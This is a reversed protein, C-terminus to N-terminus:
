PIVDCTAVVLRADDGLDRAQASLQDTPGAIGPFRDDANTVYNGLVKAIDDAGSFQEWSVRSIRRHGALELLAEGTRVAAADVEDPRCLFPVHMVRHNATRGNAEGYQTIAALRHWVAPITMIVELEGNTPERHEYGDGTAISVARCAICITISGAPPSLPQADVDALYGTMALGCVRCSTATM